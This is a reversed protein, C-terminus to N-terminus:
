PAKSNHEESFVIVARQGEPAILRRDKMLFGSKRTRAAEFIAQLREPVPLKIALELTHGTSGSDLCLHVTAIGGSYDYLAFRNPSETTFHYRRAGGTVTAPLAIQDAVSLLKGDETVDQGDLAKLLAAM